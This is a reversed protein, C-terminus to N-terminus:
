RAPSTRHDVTRKSGTLPRLTYGPSEKGMRATRKSGTLPRLMINVPAGRGIAVTRMAGTLPRLTGGTTDPDYCIM